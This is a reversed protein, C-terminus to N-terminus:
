FNHFYKETGHQEFDAVVNRQKFTRLRRGSTRSIRTTILHLHTHLILPIINFRPVRFHQSIFKDWQWKELGCIGTAQRRVRIAAKLPRCRVARVMIAVNLTRLKQVNHTFIYDTGRLVCPKKRTCFRTGYYRIPFYDVIITIVTHIVRVSRTSLICLKKM